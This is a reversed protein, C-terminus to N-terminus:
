HINKNHKKNFKERYILMLYKPLALMRKFRKPEQILRYLWEIHHDIWFQPARKVNGALVDFSGGVGMWISNSHKRHKAIFFDQKPFGLAVFIFNPQKQNIEEIIQTEDNFYGDHYGSIILHPYKEEINTILQQLVEKKTGLFYVSKQQQDAYKLLSLMTDFGTVRQPLPDGLIQAGKIIGIGDATVYDANNIIHQYEPNKRSELVIEPNATVVFRNKNQQQDNILSDVLQKQTLKMFNIGLINVEKFKQM